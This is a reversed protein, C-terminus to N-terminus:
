VFVPEVELNVGFKEYVDAQIQQALQRVETGTAGGHNVLVLAQKEYVGVNGLRKGKWQCQEILWGAALKYQDQHPYSVLNPNTQLIHERLEASVIPNKFFSGANGIVAPDPLKSQRIHIITRSVDSATPQQIGQELLHQAVDGYNIRAQWQKPLAFTVNLILLQDKLAQKFISDRYAFQCQQNNLTICKGTAFDYATLAHFYDKIEVGYAGINQIPAAGVTGPILSLNELGEYGQALTWKVFEHWNEGAQAQVYYYDQDEAVLSRGFIAVHLVLADVEDSLILNSGGGLILKPTTGLNGHSLQLAEIDALSNIQVFHHAVAAIGFSNKNKLSIHQEIQMSALNYVHFGENSIIMLLV